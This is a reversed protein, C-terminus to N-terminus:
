TLDKALLCDVISSRALMIKIFCSELHGRSNLQVFDSDRVELEM